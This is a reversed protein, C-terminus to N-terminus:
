FEVSAFAFSNLTKQTVLPLKVFKQPKIAFAKTECHAFESFKGGHNKVFIKFNKRSVLAFFIRSLLFPWFPRHFNCLYSNVIPEYDENQTYM